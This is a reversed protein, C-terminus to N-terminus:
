GRMKVHFHDHHRPFHRVFPIDPDNFLIFAVPTLTRFLEILKATGAHDYAADTYTVQEERGDKRLPRIDVELGSMHSDHDPPKTGGPLSINGVGFRRRDIAQWELAVRLIATMMVPHAYQFAGKDPKNYLLGYTYYGSDM